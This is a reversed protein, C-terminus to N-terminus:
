KSEKKKHCKEGEKKDKCEACQKGKGYDFAAAVAGTGVVVSNIVGAASGGM